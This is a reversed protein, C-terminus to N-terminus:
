CGTGPEGLSRRLSLGDNRAHTRTHLKHTRTHAEPLAMRTSPARRTTVNARRPVSGRGRDRRRGPGLDPDSLPQHHLRRRPKPNLNGVRQHLGAPLKLQHLSQGTSVSGVRVPAPLRRRIWSDSTAPRIFIYYSFYFYSLIPILLSIVAQAVLRQHRAPDM